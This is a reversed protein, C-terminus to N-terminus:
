VVLRCTSWPQATFQWFSWFLNHELSWWAQVCVLVISALGAYVPLNQQGSTGPVRKAKNNVNNLTQMESAVQFLKIKDFMVTKDFM